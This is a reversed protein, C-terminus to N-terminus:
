SDCHWVVWRLQGVQGRSNPRREKDPPQKKWRGDSADGTRGDVILRHKASRRIGVMIGAVRDFVEM